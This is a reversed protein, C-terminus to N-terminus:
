HTVECEPLAGIDGSMRGIGWNQGAHMGDVVEM